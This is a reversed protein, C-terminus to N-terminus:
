AAHYIGQMTQYEKILETLPPINNDRELMIPLRKKEMTYRMLDWVVDKVAMGHTDILLDDDYVMHGAIHCYAVSDLDIADIFDKANFGHNFSNVFLNNLDLLLKAGSRDLIAMIFASEEMTSPLCTYYTPNEIILPRELIEEVRGIKKVIGEVMPETMPLPLLEYSQVGDLSTFSLHESYEEIGYRDLFKKLRKLHKLNLTEVDGLSLSLGHAVVSFKECIRAFRKAEKKDMHMLNEPAVELFDIEGQYNEIEDIFNDRLGLGCGHICM